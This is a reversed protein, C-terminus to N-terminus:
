EDEIKALYLKVLTGAALGKETFKDIIEIKIEQGLSKKLLRLRQETIGMSMSKGKTFMPRQEALERAKARGVGNDEIEVRLFEADLEFRVEVKGATKLPKLGHKVANEVYPQVLMPPILLEDQLYEDCVLEFAMLEGSRMRELELYARLIDLETRLPILSEHSSELTSRILRAFSSLYRIARDQENKLIFSSISDLANFIFHPNMQLRLAMGELKSLERETKAKQEIQKIRRKLLWYVLILLVLFVMLWFGANLWFPPRVSFRLEIPQSRAMTFPDLAFAEFRYQGPPIVPFVAQKGTQSVVIRNQRDYLVYMFQWRMPDEHARYGLGIRLYSSSYPLEFRNIKGMFGPRDFCNDNPRGLDLQRVLPTPIQYKHKTKIYLRKSGEFVLLTSDPLWSLELAEVQDAGYDLGLVLVEQTQWRGDPKWHGILIHNESLLALRGSKSISAKLLRSSEPLPMSWEEWRNSGRKLRNLKGNSHIKFVMEEAGKLWNAEGNETDNDAWKVGKEASWEGLRGDFASLWLTNGSKFISKIGNIPLTFAGKSHKCWVGDALVAWLSDSKWFVDFVFPDEELVKITKCRGQNCELLGSETALYM